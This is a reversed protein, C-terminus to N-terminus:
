RSDSLVKLSNKIDYLVVFCSVYLVFLTVDFSIYWISASAAVTSPCSREIRECIKVRLSRTARPTEHLRM